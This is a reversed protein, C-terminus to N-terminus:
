VCEHNETTKRLHKEVLSENYMTYMHNLIHMHAEYYTKGRFCIKNIRKYKEAFEYFSNRDPKIGLRNLSESDYWCLQNYRKWIADIPMFVPDCWWYGIADPNPELLNTEYRESWLLKYKSLVLEDDNSINDAFISM